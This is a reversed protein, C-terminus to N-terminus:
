NPFCIQIHISNIKKHMLLTQVTKTLNESLLKFSNNLESRNEKAATETKETLNTIQQSFTEFQNKQANSLDTVTKTLSESLLKFSNNLEERNSKFADQNENRNRSFEERIAPEIRSIITEFKVLDQSNDVTTKKTLLIIINIIGIIILVILLILITTNM